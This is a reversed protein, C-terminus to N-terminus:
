GGSLWTIGIKAWVERGTNGEVAVAIRDFVGKKADRAIYPKWFDAIFGRQKEVTMGDTRILRANRTYTEAIRSLDSQRLASHHPEIAQELNPDSMGM